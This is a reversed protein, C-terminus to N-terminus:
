ESEQQGNVRMERIFNVMQVPAPSNGNRVKEYGAKLEKLAAVRDHFVPRGHKDFGKVLHTLGREEALKASPLMRGVVDEEMIEGIDALAIDALCSDIKIESMLTEALLNEIAERITPKQLNQRAMQNLTDYSGSYGAERAARVGNKSNAYFICFLRQKDTSLKELAKSQILELATNKKSKAM